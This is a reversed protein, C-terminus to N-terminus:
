KTYKRVASDDESILGVSVDTDSKVSAKRVLIVAGVALDACPNKSDNGITSDAAADKVDAKDICRNMVISAVVEGNPLDYADYKLADKRARMRRMEFEDGLVGDTNLEKLIKLATTSKGTFCVNIGHSFGECGFMTEDRKELTSIKFDNEQSCQISTKESATSISCAALVTLGAFLAKM